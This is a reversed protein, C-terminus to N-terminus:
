VFCHSYEKSCFWLIFCTIWSLKHNTAFMPEVAGNESHLPAFGGRQFSLISLIDSWALMLLIFSVYSIRVSVLYTFSLWLPSTSSKLANLSLPYWGELDM